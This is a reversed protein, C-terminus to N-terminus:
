SCFNIVIVEGGDTDEEAEEVEVSPSTADTRCTM